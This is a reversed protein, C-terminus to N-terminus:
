GRAPPAEPASAEPTPITSASGDRLSAYTPSLIEIGHAACQDQIHQHLESYVLVMLNPNATYANLQYSVADNGLDTQLVFPPPERLIHESALAAAILTAHARRWPLDYGLTITTQLILARNLDRASLNYNVVKNSLLSSNPITIIQNAPTCIRVALFNKEIIDGIVDGVRIHDGIRFARTYILIVGGILNSIASTSGLSLLLGLFVSIGQFAPSSFGPMFPFALVAALAIVLAALLNFTPKGWEPYFGPIALSGRDVAMFFPRLARLLSFALFLIIAVIFLNPLYNGIATLVQELSGYFYGRIDEGVARTWPYLRLTFAALYFFGLSLLLLRLLTLVQLWAQAIAQASVIEVQNLRIAPVRRAILRALLPFLRGSLRIVAFCFALFGVSAILAYLSHRLLQGPKRDQRYQGLAAKIQQLSQEVLAKATLRSAQADRENITLLVDQGSSIYWFDDDPQQFTLSDISRSDDQAFRKLRRSITEAREELSFGAIGRRLTLVERGDLLIPVGDIPPKAQPQDVLPEQQAPVQLQVQALAPTQFFGHVLASFTLVVVAVIVALTVRAQTAAPHPM